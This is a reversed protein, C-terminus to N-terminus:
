GLLDRQLSLKEKRYAREDLRKASLHYFLFGASGVAMVAATIPVISKYSAGDDGM